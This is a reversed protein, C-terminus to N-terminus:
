DLTVNQSKISEIDDSWDGIMDIASAISTTYPNPLSSTKIAEFTMYIKWLIESINDAFAAPHSSVGKSGLSINDSNIDICRHAQPYNLQIEGDKNIQIYSKDNKIIWGSNDSFYITAWGMQGNEKNCLVEVNEEELIKKNNEIFNDKRFWYLQQTNDFFNIIWVEDGVIPTSFQNTHSTLFPVVPPLLELKDAESFLGPASVKITGNSDVIQLIKGPRLIANCLKM